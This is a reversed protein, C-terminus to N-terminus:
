FYISIIIHRWEIPLVSYILKTLFINNKLLKCFIYFYLTNDDRLVFITYSPRNDHHLFSKCFLASYGMQFELLIQLSELQWDDIKCLLNKSKTSTKSILLHKPRKQHPKDEVRERDEKFLKHRFVSARSM